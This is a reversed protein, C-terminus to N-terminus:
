RLYHEGRVRFTNPEIPSWSDLMKKELACFQVQSGALPKELIAKTSVILLFSSVFNAFEMTVHIM